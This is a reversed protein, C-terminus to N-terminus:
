LFCEEGRDVGGDLVEVIAVNDLAGDHLDIPVLDQEVDAVFGLTDDGRALQRDLMVDIRSVDDGNTIVDLGEDELLLVFFAAQDERLLTCLVFARPARDLLDLFVITDDLARDDLDDLTTQDDVDAQTAEQGRREDLHTAYTVQLGVDAAFELRLDDLQVLVAVVHDQGAAGVELLRLGLDTRVEEVLEGLALDALTHTELM